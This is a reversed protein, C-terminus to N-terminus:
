SPTLPTALSRKLSLQQSQAGLFDTMKKKRKKEKTEMHSYQQKGSRLHKENRHNILGFVSTSAPATAKTKKNTSM